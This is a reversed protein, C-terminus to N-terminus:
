LKIPEPYDEGFTDVSVKTMVVPTLPMDGYDTDVCAIRDVVDLGEIVKGFAAYQGDLYPLEEVCIFFQSSASNPDPTRAMSVVGPTHRLPNRVGNAAFEGRITRPAPKHILEGGSQTFGGGQIMFERIVRHFCLGDYFGDKVLAMFNEVSEPAYERFLELNIKKGDTFEICVKDKTM